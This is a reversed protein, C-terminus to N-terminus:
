AAYARIRSVAGQRAMALAFGLMSLLSLSLLATTKGLGMVNMRGVRYGDKLRSYVREVSTRKNYERRFKDTHSPLARYNVFDGGKGIKLKSVKVGCRDKCCVNVRDPCAYKLFEGDRGKYVMRCGIACVPIGEMDFIGETEKRAYRNKHIVPLIGKGWLRGHTSNSDYAGDLAASAPKMEPHMFLLGDVMGELAPADNVNAGTVSFAVPLEHTADVLLHLKYGFWKKVSRHVNGQADTFKREHKRWSADPDSAVGTEKDRAGNSRSAVDTSDGALAAGFGPLLTRLEEVMGDFMERMYDLCEPAALKKMFRSFAWQSPTDRKDNRGFCAFRLDRNRRLERHVSAFSDHNYVLMAVFCAWMHPLPYQTDRRGKRRLELHRLLRESPLANLTILLRAHDDYAKEASEFDFGQQISFGM